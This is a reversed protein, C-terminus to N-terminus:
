MTGQTGILFDEPMAPYLGLVEFFNDEFLFHIHNEKSFNSFLRPLNWM